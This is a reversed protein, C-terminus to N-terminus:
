RIQTVDIWDYEKVKKKTKADNLGDVEKISKGFKNYNVLVGDDLDITTREIALPRLIDREYDILELIVLKLKDIEKQARTQESSSGTVIIHDLHEIRTNLKERYQILYKNLINNLTDPTYRHMYVLVNFSGKTSSFMWYIPRKKYRKIHDAYFDKVFYKRVDKGLCEEVFALNKDFNSIGFSGKLFAYFRGAIDDEFWEDDLVPIINDDDPMFTLQDRAKNVKVLFEQLTEGQNALIIGEKDLSYRGFMCGVAYSIFQAFVESAKFVLQGNEISTEEKLITIDELPVDPTLEANLGYIESFQRNLEEENKHIQFFKNKWYLRYLDYTEELDQSKINILANFKYNFSRESNEEYTTSISLNINVIYNINAKTLEDIEFPIPFKSMDGIEFNLTPTLRGLLEPFVKSNLVGLLLNEDAYDVLYSSADISIFGKPFKRISFNSSSIKSFALIPKYFHRLSRIVSNPKLSNLEFGDNEWNIVYEINGYYKQFEGGKNAKIWKVNESKPNESKSTKCNEVETWFRLFRGNDSTSIGKKIESIENLSKSKDFIEIARKSLFYGIPSGSIKKFELQNSNYFWGCNKNLIAELTKPAQNQSGKFDSLRIYSGEGDKINNYRLTFTCIPVTAGDFGSYELQILNNIFHKNIIIERLKEYSSIFMWVFPTMYGTLGDKNCLELCRLIFTSFLDSKTEPYTAEIYQKLIGDMRSSSIYPPNTVVVDYRQGLLQYLVKLEEQRETFLTNKEVVLNAMEQADVKILSGLSTANKFNSDFEFDQYYSINPQIKKTEVIRLFRRNKQRGKMLLVFSALQAARQDIDVGFLNKTIILEPIESPNYGEEEYIKFFVDFAYSLIHGSGVCPEFFKIEEISKKERKELQEIYSPKIYFELDTSVKTNPNIESWVQGLTNDVMYQVIWKPTFLQSAPALEDSKYVKKSSILEENKESIYFQYLWGIVEVETCNEVSMGDRIDKIISLESLLDDPLLLETYDNIREFLFPLVKNLHNCAGVLLEQFVENQGNSSPIKGDILDFIRPRNVNLEDSIHGQKADDLIEPLTYGEKPTIIKIGLPQYDNVDMFRLAMFRNFWTYAVKDILQSKSSKSIADKLLKIQSSKERLEPTDNNLVFELKAGIQELLKKRAQQAFKKLQNTNM